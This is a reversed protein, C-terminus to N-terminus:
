VKRGTLGIPVKGTPARNPSCPQRPRLVGAALRSPSCVYFGVSVRKPLGYTRERKRKEKLKNFSVSFSSCVTRHSPQIMTRMILAAFFFLIDTDSSLCCLLLLPPAWNEFQEREKNTITTTQRRERRGAKTVRTRLAWLQASLRLRCCSYAHQHANTWRTERQRTGYAM